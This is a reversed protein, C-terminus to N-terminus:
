IPGIRSESSLSFHVIDSWFQQPRVVLIPLMTRLPGVFTRCFDRLHGRTTRPKVSYSIPHSSVAIIIEVPSLLRQIHWVASDFFVDLPKSLNPYNQVFDSANSCWCTTNHYRRCRHQNIRWPISTWPASIQSSVESVMPCNWVSDSSFLCYIQPIIYSASIAKLVLDSLRSSKLRIQISKSPNLRIQVFILM